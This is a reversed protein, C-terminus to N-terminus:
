TTLCTMKLNIIDPNEDIYCLQRKDEFYKIRKNVGTIYLRTDIDLLIEM